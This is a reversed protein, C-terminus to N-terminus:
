DRNGTRIKAFYAEANNQGRAARNLAAEAGAALTRLRKLDGAVAEDDEVTRAKRFANAAADFYENSSKLGDSLNRTADLKMKLYRRYDEKLGLRAAAELSARALASAETARAARLASETALKEGASYGKDTLPLGVMRANAKNIATLEVVARNLSVNAKNVFRDATSERFGCGIVSLAMVAILLASASRAYSRM